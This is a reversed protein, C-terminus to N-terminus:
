WFTVFGTRELRGRMRRLKDASRPCAGECLDILADLIEAVEEGTGSLRPLIKQLVQYDFADNPTFASPDPLAEILDLACAMYILVEERIRYAFHLDEAALIDNIEALKANWPPIDDRTRVDEFSRYPRDCLAPGLEKLAGSDVQAGAEDDDMSLDVRDFAVTNARDLVKPSFSYTTEDMNVTGAVFLNRPIPMRAPLAGLDETQITDRGPALEIEDTTYDGGPTRRATEMASLFDSLYHEVRALNMEDLCVFCPRDPEARAECMAQLLPGTRYAGTLLNEFGLLDRAEHWDPRVPILRYGKARGAEAGNLAEALLRIVTSKGTGSIGALILFPKAKLCLYLNFLMDQSIRFGRGRVYRYLDPLLDAERPALSERVLDPDAPEAGYLVPAASRGARAEAFLAYLPHLDRFIDLIRGCIEPTAVEPSDPPYIRGVFIPRDTGKLRAPSWPVSREPSAVIIDGALCRYGRRPVRRRFKGADSFLSRLDAGPWWGAYFGVSLSNEHLYLGLQPLRPFPSKKLRRDVFYLCAHDRPRNRNPRFGAATYVPSVVPTLDPDIAAVGPALHGCLSEMRRRLHEAGMKTGNCAAFDNPTFGDFAAM